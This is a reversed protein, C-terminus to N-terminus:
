AVQRRDENEIRTIADAAYLAVESMREVAAHAIPRAVKWYAGMAMTPEGRGIPFMAMSRVFTSLYLNLPVRADVRIDPIIGPARDVIAMGSICSRLPFAQGTWLPAIADESVYEVEDGIRRIVTIGDAEAIARASVTLARVIDDISGASALSRRAEELPTNHLLKFFNRM